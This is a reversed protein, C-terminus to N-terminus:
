VVISVPAVDQLVNSLIRHVSELLGHILVELVKSELVVTIEISELLRRVRLVQPLVMNFLDFIAHADVQALSAKLVKLQVMWNTSVLKLVNAIFNRDLEHGLVLVLKLDIFLHVELDFNLVDLLQM